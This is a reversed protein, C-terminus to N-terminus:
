YFEKLIRAEGNEIDLAITFTEGINESVLPWFKEIENGISQFLKYAMYPSNYRRRARAYGYKMWGVMKPWNEDTTYPCVPIEGEEDEGGFEEDFSQEWEKNVEPRMERFFSDLTAHDYSDLIIVKPATPLGSVTSERWTRTLNFAALRENSWFATPVNGSLLRTFLYSGLAAIEQHFTGTERCGHEILDHNLARVAVAPSYNTWNKFINPLIGSDGFEEDIVVKCKVYRM